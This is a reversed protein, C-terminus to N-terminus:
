AYFIIGRTELKEIERGIQDFTWECSDNLTMILTHLPLKDSLQNADHKAIDKIADTTIFSRFDQNIIKSPIGANRLIQKEEDLGGLRYEMEGWTTTYKIIKIYKNECGVAGIACYKEIKPKKGKTNLEALETFSQVRKKTSEFLIQSITKM